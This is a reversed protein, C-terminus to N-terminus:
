AGRSIHCGATHNLLGKGLIVPTSTGRSTVQKSKRGPRAPQGRHSLFCKSWQGQPRLLGLSLQQVSLRTASESTGPHRLTRARTQCSRVLVPLAGPEVMGGSLLDQKSGACPEHTVAQRCGLVCARMVDFQVFAWTKTVTYKPPHNAHCFPPQIPQSSLSRDRVHDLSRYSQRSLSTPKHCPPCPSTLRHCIQNM